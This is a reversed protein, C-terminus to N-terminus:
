HEKETLVRGDHMARIYLKNLYKDKAKDTFIGIKWLRMIDHYSRLHEKNNTILM